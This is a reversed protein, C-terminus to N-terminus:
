KLERRLSLLRFVVVMMDMRDGLAEFVLKPKPLRGAPLGFSM